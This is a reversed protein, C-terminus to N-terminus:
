GEPRVIIGEDHIMNDFPTLRSPLRPAVFVDIGM